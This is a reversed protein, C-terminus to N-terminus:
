RPDIYTGYTMALNGGTAANERKFDGAGTVGGLRLAAMYGPPANGGDAATYVSVEGNGKISLARLLVSRSSMDIGNNFPNEQVRACFANMDVNGGNQCQRYEGIAQENAWIGAYPSPSSDDGKNNSSCAALLAVAAPLLALKWDKSRM